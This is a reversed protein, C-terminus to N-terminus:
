MFALYRVKMEEEEEAKAEVLAGLDPGAPVQLGIAVGVGVRRGFHDDLVDKVQAVRLVRARGKAKEAVHVAGLVQQEPDPHQAQAIM